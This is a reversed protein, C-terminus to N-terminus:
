VETLIEEDDNLYWSDDRGLAIYQKYESDTLTQALDRDNFIIMYTKVRGHRHVLNDVKNM